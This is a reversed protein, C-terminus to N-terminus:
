NMPLSDDVNFFTAISAYVIVIFFIKTEDLLVLTGNFGFADKGVEFNVFLM